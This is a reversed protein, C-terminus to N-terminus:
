FDLRYVKEGADIEGTFSFDLKKYFDEPGDASPVCSLTLGTANPMGKIRDVLLQLAEKGYGKGQHEKDIMFRWLYYQGKEPEEHLMLFGVPTDEHYIARFWAEECFYAQAISVSNPAVFGKQHEMVELRCITRVTSATVERLSLKTDQTM